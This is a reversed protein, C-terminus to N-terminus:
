FYMYIQATQKLFPQPTPSVSSFEYCLHALVGLQKCRQVLLLLSVANQPCSSDPQISTEWRELQPAEAATPAPWHLRSKTLALM